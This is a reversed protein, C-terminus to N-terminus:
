KKAALARVEDLFAKLPRNIPAPAAKDITVGGKDDQKGLTLGTLSNVVVPEKDKERLVHYKGQGLGVVHWTKNESKLFLVVEEDKTFQPMGPVLQALGDVEGGLTRVVVEGKLDGKVTEAIQVTTLTIIKTKKDDWQAKAAAVKGVVVEEAQGALDKTELKVMVAGFALAAACLAAAACAIAFISKM